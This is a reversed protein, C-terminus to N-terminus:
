WDLLFYFKDMNNPDGTKLKMSKPKVPHWSENKGDFKYARVEKLQVLQPENEHSTSDSSNKMYLLRNILYIIMKFSSSINLRRPRFCWLLADVCTALDDRPEIIVDLVDVQPTAVRYHRKLHEMNIEGCRYIDLSVQISVQSCYTSNSLFKSNSLFEMLRCFWKDALSHKNSNFILNKFKSSEKALKLQPLHNGEYELSVLNPADVEIKQCNNIRLNNIKLVRLSESRGIKFRRSAFSGSLELSELNPYEIDLEDLSYSFYYLYELIPAEIELSQKKEIMIHLSRINQLNRVEFKIWGRCYLIILNDILPYNNLLGELMNDDLTVNNLSLKRLSHCNGVYSTPLSSFYVLNCDELVLERLHKATLMKFINFSSYYGLNRYVLETVGNQLAIDLWKDILFFIYGTPKAIDISLEFKDIPIKEDRYRKMIKDVIDINIKGRTSWEARTEAGSCAVFLLNPNTLWAQLWTRSLITM